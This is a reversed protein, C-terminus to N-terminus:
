KIVYYLGYYVINANMQKSKQDCKIKRNEYKQQPKNQKNMTEKM